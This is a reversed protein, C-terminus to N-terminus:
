QATLPMGTAHCSWKHKCAASKTSSCGVGCGVCGPSLTYLTMNRLTGLYGNHLLVYCQQREIALM